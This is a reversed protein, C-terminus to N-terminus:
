DKDRIVLMDIEREEEIIEYNYPELSKNLESLDSSKWSIEIDINGKYDTGNVIPMTINKNLESLLSVFAGISFNKMKIFGTDYNLLPKGGTCKLLNKDSINKLVLCGITLKEIKATYPFFRNLDQQLSHYPMDSNESPMASDYSFLNEDYWDDKKTGDSPEYFKTSDKVELIIRNMRLDKGYIDVLGDPISIGFAYQYFRLRPQNVLRTRMVKNASDADSFVIYSGSYEDIRDMFISYFKKHYVLRHNGEELLSEDIGFHATENKFHLALPKDNIFKRINEATANYADTIFKVYGEPDIWIQHPVTSHPFLTNIITDNINMPLDPIKIKSKAFLKKVQTGNNQTVLIIKIKEGFEKQLSDLSPMLSICASCWVDWLDLIIYKGKLDIINLPKSENIFNALIVDPMKDGPKIPTISSSQSNAQIVFWFSVLLFFIIRM